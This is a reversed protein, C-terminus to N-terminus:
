RKRAMVMSLDLYPKLSFPFHFLFFISLYKHHFHKLRCYNQTQFQMSSTNSKQLYNNHWFCYTDHFNRPSVPVPPFIKVFSWLIPEKVERTELALESVCSAFLDDGNSGVINRFSIFPTSVVNSNPSRFKSKVM